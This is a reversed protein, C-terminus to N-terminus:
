KTKRITQGMSHYGAILLNLTSLLPSAEEPIRQGAKPMLSLSLPPATLFLWLLYVLIPLFKVLM